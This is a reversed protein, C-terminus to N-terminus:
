DCFSGVPKLRYYNLKDIVLHVREDRRLAVREVRRSFAGQQLLALQKMLVYFQDRGKQVRHVEFPLFRLGM